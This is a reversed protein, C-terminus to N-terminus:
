TAPRRSRGQAGGGPDLEPPEDPERVLRPGGPVRVELALWALALPAALLPGVPHLLRLLVHVVVVAALAGLLGFVVPLNRTNLHGPVFPGLFPLSLSMARGARLVIAGAAAGAFAADGLFTPGRLCTFLLTTLLFAPVATGLYLARACGALVRERRAHPVLHYVWRAEPNSGMQSMELMGPGVVALLYLAMAAGADALIEGAPGPMLTMAVGMATFGFLQPYIARVFMPERRALALGLEYGAREEPSAGRGPGLRALWPPGWVARPGRAAGGGALASAFHASALRVSVALAAVPLLLAVLAGAWRLEDLRGGAVEFLSGFCFPPLLGLWAPRDGTAELLARAPLLRGALQFGGFALTATVVQIWLVVRQFVRPGFARLAGAYLLGVAALALLTTLATCLPVLLLVRLPPHRFCGLFTPWVAYVGALLAMYVFTHGLRAAFLTRGPVPLPGVVGVDTGDVLLTAFHALLVMLLMGLLMGQVLALWLFSDEVFFAAVGPMMGALWFGTTILALGVHFSPGKGAGAGAGVFSSERLDLEVRLGLLARFAVPEVGLARLPRELRDVAGLVMPLLLASRSRPHWPDGLRPRM